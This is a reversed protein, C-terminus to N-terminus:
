PTSTRTTITNFESASGNTQQEVRCACLTSLPYVTPIRARRIENCMWYSPITPVLALQKTTPSLLPKHHVQSLATDSLTHTATPTFMAQVKSPPPFVSLFPFACSTHVLTYLVRPSQAQGTTARQVFCLAFKLSFSTFNQLHITFKWLFQTFQRWGKPSRDCSLLYQRITYGWDRCVFLLGYGSNHGLSLSRSTVAYKLDSM